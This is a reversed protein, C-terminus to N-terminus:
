REARRQFGPAGECQRSRVKNESEHLFFTSSVNGDGYIFSGRRFGRGLGLEQM